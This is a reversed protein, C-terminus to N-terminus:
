IILHSCKSQMFEPKAEESNVLNWNVLSHVSNLKHRLKMNCVCVLTHSAALHMRKCCLSFRKMSEFYSYVSRVFKISCNCARVSFCHLSVPSCLHFHWFLSPLVIPFFHLVALFNSKKYFHGHETFLYSQFSMHRKILWLKNFSFHM